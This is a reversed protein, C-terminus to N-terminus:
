LFGIWCVSSAVWVEGWVVCLWPQARLKGELATTLVSCVPTCQFSLQPWRLATRQLGLDHMLSASQLPKVCFCCDVRLHIVLAALVDGQSSSCYTSSGCFNNTQSCSQWMFAPVSTKKVNKFPFTSTLKLYSSLSRNVSRWVILNNKMSDWHTLCQM